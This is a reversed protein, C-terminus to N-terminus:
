RGLGFLAGVRGILGLKQGENKGPAPIMMRAVFFNDFINPPIAFHRKLDARETAVYFRNVGDFYAFHYDSALIHPEWQDHTEERSLPKTAEVLIIWPRFRRLDFSNIVEAEAGECDIKLFHVDAPAHEAFVSNLTRLEVETNEQAYGLDIHGAAIEPRLTSMGTGHILTITARGPESGIAVGLNIDRPRKAQLLTLYTPNPEINVGRWGREHFYRTVSDIDPDWAGVDVWFGNEIEAFARSLMVDEFNQAHSIMM